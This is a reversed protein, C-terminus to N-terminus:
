CTRAGALYHVCAERFYRRDTERLTAPEDFLYLRLGGTAFNQNMENDFAGEWRVFAALPTDGFRYEILARGTPVVDGHISAVGGIGELKLNETPYFRILGRGYYGKGDTAFDVDLSKSGADMYGGQVGLTLADIYYEGEGGVRWIGHGPDNHAALENYGGTVEFAGVNPDAIGIHGGGGVNSLYDPHFNSLKDVDTYDGFVDGQFHFPAFLCAVSGTGGAEAANQDNSDGRPDLIAMGGYGEARLACPSPPQKAVSDGGPVLFPLSMVSLAILRRLM